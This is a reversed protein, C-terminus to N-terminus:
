KTRRSNEMFCRMRMASLREKAEKALREMIEQTLPVEEGQAIEAIMGFDPRTLTALMESQQATRDIFGETLNEFM